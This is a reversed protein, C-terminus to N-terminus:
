KIFIVAILLTCMCKSQPLLKTHIPSMLLILLELSNRIVKSYCINFITGIEAYFAIFIYFNFNFLIMTNDHM